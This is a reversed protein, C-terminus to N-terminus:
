KRERDAANQMMAAGRRTTEPEPQPLVVPGTEGSPLIVTATGPATNEGRQNTSLLELDILHHPGEIRKDVVKGTCITTDGM